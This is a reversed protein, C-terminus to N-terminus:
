RSRGHNVSRNKVAHTKGSQTKSNTGQQTGNKVVQGGPKKEGARYLKQQGKGAMEGAEM